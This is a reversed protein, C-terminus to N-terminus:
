SGSKVLAVTEKCILCTPKTSGVPQPLVFAYKEIWKLILKEDPKFCAM